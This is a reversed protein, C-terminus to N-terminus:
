PIAFSTIKYQFLFLLTQFLNILNVQTVLATTYVNGFSGDPLQGSFNQIAKEYMNEAGTINQFNETKNRVCTLAM